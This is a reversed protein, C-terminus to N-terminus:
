REVGRSLSWGMLSIFGNTTGVGGIILYRADGSSAVIGLHPLVLPQQATIAPGNYLQIQRDSGINLQASTTGLPLSILISEYREDTDYQMRIPIGVALTSANTGIIEYEDVPHAYNFAMRSLRQMEMTRNLHLKYMQDYKEDETLVHRQPNGPIVRPPDQHTGQDPNRLNALPDETKM